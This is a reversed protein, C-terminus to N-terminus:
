NDVLVLTQETESGGIVLSAEEDIELGPQTKGLLIDRSVKALVDPHVEM